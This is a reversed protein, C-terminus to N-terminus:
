LAQKIFHRVTEQASILHRATEAPVRNATVLTQIRDPYDVTIALMHAMINRAKDESIGFALGAMKLLRLGINSPVMSKNITLGAFPMVMLLNHQSYARMPAPDYVPSLGVRCKHQLFSWNDWHLDGNGTLLALLLRAYADEADKSPHHSIGLGTANIAQGLMDLNGHVQSATNRALHLISFASELLLPRGAQRDFRKIALVRLGEETELTWCHPTRLGAEKHIELCLAELAVLGPYDSTEIKAVVHHAEAQENLTASSVYSGDWSDEPGLPPIALLLKPIMGGVSPTPGVLSSLEIDRETEPLASQIQHHVGHWLGSRGNKWTPHATLQAYWAKAEDDHRFFDMHGIGDRGGLMLMEWDTDFGPPPADEFQAITIELLRRQLNQMGWSRHPPPIHSMMFPPLPLNATRKYEIRTRIDAWPWVISLPPATNATEPIDFVVRDDLVTIAALKKPEGGARTWVVGNKITM